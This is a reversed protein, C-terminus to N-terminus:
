EAGGDRDERMQKILEGVDITTCQTNAVINNAFKRGSEDMVMELAQAVIKMGAVVFPLDIYHYENGFGVLRGTTEDLAESMLRNATGRDGAMIAATIGVSMPVEHRKM